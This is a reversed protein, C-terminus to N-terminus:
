HQVMPVSFRSITVPHQCHIEQFELLSCGPRRSEMRRGGWGGRCLCKHEAAQLPLFLLPPLRHPEWRQEPEYSYETNSPSPNPSPAGSRPRKARLERNPVLTLPMTLRVQLLNASRPAAAKRALPTGVTAALPMQPHAQRLAAAADLPPFPPVTATTTELLLPAPAGPNVPQVTGQLQHRAAGVLVRSLHRAPTLAETPRMLMPVTERVRLKAPRSRRIVQPLRPRRTPAAQMVQVPLLKPLPRAALQRHQALRPPREPAPRRPQRPITLPSLHRALRPLQTRHRRAAQPQPKGQRPRRGQGRPTMRM